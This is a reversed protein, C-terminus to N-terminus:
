AREGEANERVVRDFQEQTVYGLREGVSMEGFALKPIYAEIIVGADSAGLPISHGFDETSSACADV